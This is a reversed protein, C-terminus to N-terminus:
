RSLREVADFLEDAAGSEEYAVAGDRLLRVHPLVSVGRLERRAIPSEFDVINVRRVSLGPREAALTRLRKDLVQCAECWPAWFDFVTWKGPVGELPALEGALVADLVDGGGGAAAGPGAGAAAGARAAAGAGVAAGAGAGVASQPEDFGPELHFLRGLGLQVVVPLELQANVVHSYARVQVDLSAMWEGAFNWTAGPAIYVDTRGQNGEDAPVQGGWHEAAEHLAQVGLRFSFAGAPHSVAAGGFVRAGARYGEGGAYLPTQAQAFLSARFAGLDRSADLALLPDFTGTGLQIHEHPLGQASLRFPDPHVVGLPISVGARAGLRLGLARFGHHLYVSADGPGVLTEDRHHINQYDLEVPADLLNTYRTRTQVIRLPLAVQVALAHVLGYEALLRVDTAWLVTHHRQAPEARVSCVPGIEPCAEDHVAEARSAGIAVDLRLHNPEM